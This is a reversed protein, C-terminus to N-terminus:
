WQPMRASQRCLLQTPQGTPPFAAIEGVHSFRIRPQRMFTSKALNSEAISARVARRISPGLLKIVLCRMTRDGREHLEAICGNLVGRIVSNPTADLADHAYCAAACLSTTNCALLPMRVSVGQKKSTGFFSGDFLRPLQASDRKVLQMVSARIEKEIAVRVAFVLNYAEDVMESPATLSRSLGALAFYSKLEQCYIHKLNSSSLSDAFSVSKAVFKRAWELTKTQQSISNGRGGM